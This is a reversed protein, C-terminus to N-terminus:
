SMLSLARRTVIEIVDNKDSLDFLLGARHNQDLQLHPSLLLTVMEVWDKDHIPRSEADIHSCQVFARYSWPKFIM